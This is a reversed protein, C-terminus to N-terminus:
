NSSYFRHHATCVTGTDAGDSTKDYINVPVGEYDVCQWHLNLNNENYVADVPCNVEPIPTTTGPQASSGECNLGGSGCHSSDCPREGFANCQDASM